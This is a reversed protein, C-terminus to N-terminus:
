TADKIITRVYSATVDHKKAVANTIASPELTRLRARLESWDSLIADKKNRRPVTASKRSKTQRDIDDRELALRAYLMEMLKTQVRALQDGDISRLVNVIDNAPTSSRALGSLRALIDLWEIIHQATPAEISWLKDSRQEPTPKNPKTAMLFSGRARRPM